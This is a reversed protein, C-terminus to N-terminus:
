GKVAGATMGKIFYRNFILFVIIMPVASIIAGALILNWATAAESGGKLAIMGVPLTREGPNSLTVVMPMLYDNWATTFAFIGVTAVIPKLLPLIVRLFIGIFSCGDIEAAQDLEKPLSNIFSRVLYINTVNIGFFQMVILGWLTTNLGLAKLIQMVPYINSTGLTIFMLSTFAAFIIKKGRFEGRSFVYGCTTSTLLAASVCLASYWVSNWTYRSFNSLNWVRIYNDFKFSEPFFTSGVLIEKTEKFSAMFTYVFPYVVLLLLSILFTYAILKPIIRAKFKHKNM